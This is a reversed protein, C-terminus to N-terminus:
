GIREEISFLKRISESDLCALKFEDLTLMGPDSQFQRFISDLARTMEDSSKFCGELRNQLELIRRFELKDIKGNKDL